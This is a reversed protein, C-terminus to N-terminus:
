LSTAYQLIMVIDGIAIALAGGSGGEGIITVIVATKLQAM